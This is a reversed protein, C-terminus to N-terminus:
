LLFLVSVSFSFQSLWQCRHIRSRMVISIVDCGFHSRRSHRKTKENANLAVISIGNNQHPAWSFVFAVVIYHAGFWLKELELEIFLVNLYMTPIFPEMRNWSMNVNDKRVWLRSPRHVSNRKARSSSQGNPPTDNAQRHLGNNTREILICLIFLVVLLSASICVNAKTWQGM